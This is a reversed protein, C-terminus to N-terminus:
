SYYLATVVVGFKMNNCNDPACKCLNSIMKSFVVKITKWIITPITRDKELLWVYNIISLETNPSKFKNKLSGKHNTFQEKYKTKTLGLYWKYEDDVSSTVDTQYISWTTQCKNNVECESKGRCICESYKTCPRLIHKNYASIISKM